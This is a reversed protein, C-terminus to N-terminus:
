QHVDPPDGHRSDALGDRQRVPLIIPDLRLNFAAVLGVIAFANTIENASLLFATCLDLRDARRQDLTFLAPPRLAEVRACELALEAARM